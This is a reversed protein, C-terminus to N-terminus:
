TWTEFDYTVVPRLFPLCTKIKTFKNTLKATMLGEYAYYARYGKKLETHQKNRYAIMM